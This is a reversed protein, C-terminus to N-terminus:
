LTYTRRRPSGARWAESETPWLIGRVALECGALAARPGSVNPSAMQTCSRWRSASCSTSDGSSCTLGQIRTAPGGRGAGEGRTGPPLAGSVGRGAPPTPAPRAPQLLHRARVREEDLPLRLDVREEGLDEYGGGCTGGTCICGGWRVSTRAPAPARPRPTRRLSAGRADRSAAYRPPRRAAGARAQSAERPM